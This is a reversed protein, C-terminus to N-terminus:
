KKLAEITAPPLNRFFTYGTLKEVEKVSTQYRRWDKSPLRTENPFVAAIAKTSNSLFLGNNVPKELVLVVKWVKSPVVVKGNAITEAFGRDGSGGRGVGGAFIYLEKGERVLRRCENELDLWAGRNNQPSQPIINTMLFTYDNNEASNGRDESNVLHGRDFGSGSYDRPNIRDFGAPLNPDSFFQRSRPTDGLWSSNLQWAAWNPTGKSRAYSLSYQSRLILYNEPDTTTANSPNGPTLHISEAQPNVTQTEISRDAWCAVLLMGLCLVIAMSKLRKLAKLKETRM